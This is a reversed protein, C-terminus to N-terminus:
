GGAMTGDSIKIVRKRGFGTTYSDEAPQSVFYGLWGFVMFVVAAAASKWLWGYNSQSTVTEESEIRTKLKQWEAMIESESVVQSASHLETFIRAALMATPQEDPHNKLWEDWSRCDAENLGLVWNKFSEQSLFYDPSFKNSM